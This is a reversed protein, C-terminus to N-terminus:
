SAIRGRYSDAISENWMTMRFIGSYGDCAGALFLGIPLAWFFPIVGVLLISLAWGSASCAIAIGLRKANHTWRSALTAVLGGAAISAYLTGLWTTMGYSQAFAPFLVQPMCFVMACFDVIYSGLIDKRQYLYRAGDAIDGLV